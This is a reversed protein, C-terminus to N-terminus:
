VQARQSVSVTKAATTLNKYIEYQKKNDILAPKTNENSKKDPFFRGGTYWSAIDPLCMGDRVSLPAPIPLVRTAKKLADGVEWLGLSESWRKYCKHFGPVVATGSGRANPYWARLHNSALTLLQLAHSTVHCRVRAGVESRKDLLQAPFAFWLFAKLGCFPRRSPSSLLSRCSDKRNKPKLNDFGARVVMM